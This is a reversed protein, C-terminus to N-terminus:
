FHFQSLQFAISLNKREKQRDKKRKYVLRADGCPSDSIYLHLCIDSRLKFKRKETLLPELLEEHNASGIMTTVKPLTLKEKIELWLVRMLGRRALVEAHTDHLIFGKERRTTCKTGTAASVVWVKAGRQAVIAAYVTWESGDGRPKGKNTINKEYHRLACDAVQDSVEM